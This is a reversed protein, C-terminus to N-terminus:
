RAIKEVGPVPSIGCLVMLRDCVRQAPERLREVTLQIYGSTVDSGLSHNALAKLAMPSIDTSEAITLFTRRLDHVSIAIGCGDAVLGLFHKPEGIHGSKGNAPFVFDGRGIARRAVLLDFVFSSMPLDLKRGSKTARAPVRIVREAFDIDDWTLTAAETRRLGTFLCLRLYDCAVANELGSVAEYFAPLDESRVMRTRRPQAFWARRLRVPNPPLSPDRDAADNWLLRLVRAVGNATAEGSYRGQKAVEAAIARHRKEVMERTVEALPRDLWASLHREVSTRYDGRTSERLTKRRELYGDLAARLTVPAAKREKPDRGARMEVLLEAARERATDLELEGVAAITVRRTRGDPLDRQAVYTRSNTTGSCLVGFGRMEADWFLTQKGSPHPARLKDLATKTMKLKPM